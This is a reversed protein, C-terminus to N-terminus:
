EYAIYVARLVNLSPSCNTVKGFGRIEQHGTRALEFGFIEGNM